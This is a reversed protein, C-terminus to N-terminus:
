TLRGTASRSGEARRFPHPVATTSRSRSLIEDKRQVYLQQQILGQQQEREAQAKQESRLQQQHKMQAQLDARYAASAQQQSRPCLVALLDTQHRLLVSVQGSLDTRNFPLNVM